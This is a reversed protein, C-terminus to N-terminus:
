NTIKNGGRDYRALEAGNPRNEYFIAVRFNGINPAIYENYLEEMVPFYDQKRRDHAKDFGIATLKEHGNVSLDNWYMVLRILGKKRMERSVHFSGRPSGGKRKEPTPM